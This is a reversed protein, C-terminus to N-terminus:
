ADRFEPHHTAVVVGSFEGRRERLWHVVDRVALPHLGAEPEDVLLLEALPHPVGSELRADKVMRWAVHRLTAAIWRPLGASMETLDQTEFPFRDTATPYLCVRVLDPYRPWM